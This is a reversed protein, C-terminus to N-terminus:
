KKLFKQIELRHGDPDKTFCHYIGYKETVRPKGDTEYGEDCVMTYIRDVYDTVLTIITDGADRNIHECFGLIGGGPVSYLRCGGQDLYLPLGLLGNYFEHMKNIDDTGFFTILGDYM